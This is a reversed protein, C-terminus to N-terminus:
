FSIYNLISAAKLLQFLKLIDIKGIKDYNYSGHMIWNRNLQKPHKNWSPKYLITYVNYVRRFLIINLALKDEVTEIYDSTKNFINDKKTKKINYDDFAESLINEFVALLSFACHKYYNLNYLEHAELILSTHNEYLSNKQFLEIYEDLNKEIYKDIEFDEHNIIEMDDLMDADIAWCEKEFKSMLSEYKRLRNRFNKELDDWNISTNFKRITKAFKNLTKYYNDIFDQMPEFSKAFNKQIETLTKNSIIPRNLIRQIEDLKNKPILPKNIIKSIKNLQDNIIYNESYKSIYKNKENQDDSNNRAKKPENNFKDKDSM